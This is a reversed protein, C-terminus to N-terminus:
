GSLKRLWRNFSRGPKRPEPAPSTATEIWFQLADAPIALDQYVGMQEASKYYALVRRAAQRREGEPWPIWDRFYTWVERRVATVAIAAADEDTWAAPPKSAATRMATVDQLIEVFNAESLFPSPTPRLYYVFLHQRSRTLATYLLRREEEMNTALHHPLVDPECSPIFVVPWELGRASHITRIAVAQRGAEQRAQARTQDLRQMGGLFSRLSGRGSTFDLFQRVTEAQDSGTASLGYRTALFATYGLRKDLERLVDQAPRDHQPGDGFAGALWRLLLGLTEMQEKRGPEESVCAAILVRGIPAQQVLATEALNAAMDTPIDRKPQSYVREWSRRFQATQAPSLFEGAAMQSDLFALRCYDVLTQVEPRKYFPPDNVVAYPIDAAIFAQEVPPTQACGRVLVVMDNYSMGGARLEQIDDVIASGMERSTRFGVIETHGGFGRALHLSKPMRRRNHEIVANALLLPGARNRLSETLYYQRAGYRQAFGLLQDPRAGRWEYLTQDDSGAVMYNLHPHALLDLVEAQALSADQFEDVLLCDYQAQLPRLISGHLALMEWGALAQDDATLLGMKLRVEEYLRYLDAYWPLDDPPQVVSVLESHALDPPISEEDPYYLNGKLAAVWDLFDVLDLAELEDAYAAQRSRAEALTARLVERAATNLRKRWDPALHRLKGQEYATQVANLGLGHFTTVAVHQCDRGSPDQRALRRKLDSAGTADHAALLIRSPEFLGTRVLRAVRYELAASKGSGAVGLIVAPGLEHEVIAQQAPTLSAPPM